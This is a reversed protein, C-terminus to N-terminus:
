SPTLEGQARKKEYRKSILLAIELIAFMPLCIVTATIPTPDPTLIMLLIYVGAYIFKRRGGLINSHIIGFRVLLVFFIPITFIVGTLVCMLFVTSMFESIALMPVTVGGTFLPLWLVWFTMPVIVKYGLVVGFIFLAVFAIIFSYLFKRETSHLAPNFFKYLEYATFPLSIIVGAILAIEMYVWVPDLPNHAILTAGKPLLDITVQRLILSILTESALPNSFDIKVPFMSVIVLAIVWGFFINRLLKSLELFHEWFTMEARSKNGESM